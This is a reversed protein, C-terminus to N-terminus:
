PVGGASCTKSSSGLTEAIRAASADARSLFAEVGSYDGSWEGVVRGNRQVATVVVSFAGGRRLEQLRLSLTTRPVAGGRTELTKALSARLMEQCRTATFPVERGASESANDPGRLTLPAGVPATWRVGGTAQLVPSVALVLAAAAALGTVGFLTRRLYLGWPATASFSMEPQQAASQDREWAALAQEAIADDSPDASSLTTRTARLMRDLERASEFRARLESDRAMDQELANRANADLEGHLCAWIADKSNSENAKV